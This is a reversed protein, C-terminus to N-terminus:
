RLPKRRQSHLRGSHRLLLRDLARAAVFTRAFRRRRLGSLEHVFLDFVDTFALV